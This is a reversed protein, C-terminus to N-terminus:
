RSAIRRPLPQDRVLRAIERQLRAGGQCLAQTRDFRLGPHLDRDSQEIIKRARLRHFILVGQEPEPFEATRLRLSSQEDDIGVMKSCRPFEAGTRLALEAPPNGTSQDM